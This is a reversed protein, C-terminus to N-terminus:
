HSRAKALQSRLVFNDAESVELAAKAAKLQRQLALIRRGAEDIVANAKDINANNRRALQFEFDSIIM